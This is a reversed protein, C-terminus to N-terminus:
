FLWLWLLWVIVTLALVLLEAGLVVRRWGVGRFRFKGM